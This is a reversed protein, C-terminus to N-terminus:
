LTLVLEYIGDRSLIEWLILEFSHFNLKNKLIESLPFLTVSNDVKAVKKPVVSFRHGSADHFKTQV